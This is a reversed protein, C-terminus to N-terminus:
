NKDEDELLVLIVELVVKIITLILTNLYSIRTRNMIRKTMKKM